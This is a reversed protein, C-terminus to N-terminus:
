RSARTGYLYAEQAITAELVWLYLYGLGSSQQIFRIQSFHLYESSREVYEDSRRTRMTRM